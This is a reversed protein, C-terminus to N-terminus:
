RGLSNPPDPNIKLKQIKEQEKHNKLNETVNCDKKVHASIM